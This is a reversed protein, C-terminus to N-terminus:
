VAHVAQRLFSRHRAIRRIVVRNRAQLGGARHLDTAGFVRDAAQRPQITFPTTIPQGTILFAPVPICQLQGIAALQHEVVQPTAVTTLVHM